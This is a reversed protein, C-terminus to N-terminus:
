QGPYWFNILTLAMMTMFPTPDFTFYFTEQVGKFTKIEQFM